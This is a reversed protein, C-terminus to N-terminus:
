SKDTAFTLLVDSFPDVACVRDLIVAGIMLVGM